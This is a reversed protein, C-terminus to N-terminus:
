VVVDGRDLSAAEREIEEKGEEWFDGKITASVKRRLRIYPMEKIGPITAPVGEPSDPTKEPNPIEVVKYVESQKLLATKDFTILTPYKEKVIELIDDDDYSDDIVRFPKVTVQLKGEVVVKSKQEEISRSLYEKVVLERIEKEANAITEELESANKIDEANAADFDNDLKAKALALEARPQALKENINSLVFQGNLNVNRLQLVRKMREETTQERVKVEVQNM